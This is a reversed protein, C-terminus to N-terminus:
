STGGERPLPKESGSHGDDRFAEVVQEMRASRSGKVLLVDGAQVIDRLLEIARDASNAHKTTSGSAGLEAVFGFEAGALVAADTEQDALDAIERHASRSHAGLEKMAGLAALFRVGRERAIAKGAKLAATVSTPSANYSDDLIFLDNVGAVPCLRGPVPLVSELGEAFLELDLGLAYAVGMAATANMASHVGLLQLSVDMRRAGESRYGLTTEAQTRLGRISAGHLRVDSAEGAGFRLRRARTRDALSEALPHDGPILATGSSPLGAVLAGKEEAIAHTDGLDQAHALGIATIVGVNPEAIETLRAIEGPKSTGIEVVAVRQRQLGFLTMPVGILNNLNGRTALPEHGTRQFGAEILRRTSTKGVSGTVCVLTNAGKGCERWRRQYAQGLDGLARLTDPVRVSPVDDSASCGHEILVAGAGARVASAVHEHGDFQEGRLAVFLEGRRISRSDTSIGVVVCGGRVEGGGVGGSQKGGQRITGGTAHAIESLDFRAENSPIPTSM